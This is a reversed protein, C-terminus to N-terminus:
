RWHNRIQPVPFNPLAPGVVIATKCNNCFYHEKKSVSPAIHQMRYLKDDRVFCLNCFPEGMEAAQDDIQFLMGSRDRLTRQRKANAELAEIREALEKEREKADHLAERAELLREVLDALRLKFEADSIRTDVNWLDRTIDLTQKIAALGTMIDM